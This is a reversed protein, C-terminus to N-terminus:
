FTTGPDGPEASAEGAFPVLLALAIAMALFSQGFRAM